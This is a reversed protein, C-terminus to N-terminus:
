DAYIRQYEAFDELDVDGDSDYDHTDQCIPTAAVDPGLLCDQIPLFSLVGTNLDLIWGPPTLIDDATSLIASLDASDMPDFLDYTEIPYEVFDPEFTINITGNSFDLSDYLEIAYMDALYPGIVVNISGGNSTISITGNWRTESHLTLEGGDLNFTGKDGVYMGNICDM